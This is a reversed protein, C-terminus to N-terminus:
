YVLNARFDPMTGSKVATRWSQLSEGGHKWFKECLDFYALVVETQKRELLDKALGMNPGFRNLTPSGPTQGALLLERTATDM